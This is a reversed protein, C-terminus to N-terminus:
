AVWCKLTFKDSIWLSSIRAVKNIQKPVIKSHLLIVITDNLSLYLVKDSSIWKNWKIWETMVHVSEWDFM